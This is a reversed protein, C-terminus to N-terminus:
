SDGYCVYYRGVPRGHRILVEERDCVVCLGGLENSCPLCTLTSCLECRAKVGFGDDFQDRLCYVCPVADAAAVVAPEYESDDALMAHVDQLEQQEDADAQRLEDAREYDFEGNEDDEDHEDEHARQAHIALLRAAMVKFNCGDCCQGRCLPWASNGYGVFEEKCLCCSKM